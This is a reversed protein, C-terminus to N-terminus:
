KPVIKYYDKKEMKEVKGDKGLLKRADDIRGGVRKIAARAIMEDENTTDYESWSIKDNDDLLIMNIKNDITKKFGKPTIRMKWEHRKIRDLTLVSFIRTNSDGYWTIKDTSTRVRESNFHLQARSIVIHAGSIHTEDLLHLEEMTTELTCEKLDNCKLDAGYRCAQGLDLGKINFGYKYFKDRRKHTIFKAFEGFQDANKFRLWRQEARGTREAGIRKAVQHRETILYFLNALVNIETIIPNKNNEGEHIILYKHDLAEIFFTILAQSEKQTEKFQNKLINRLFGLHDGPDILHRGLIKYIDDAMWKCSKTPEDEDYRYETKFLMDVMAEVVLYDKFTKHIFTVADNQYGDFYFSILIKSLINKINSNSEDRMKAIYYISDESKIKDIIETVKIEDTGAHFLIYAIKRLFNNYEKKNPLLSAFPKNHWKKDYTWDIITRYILGRNIEDDRLAELYKKGETDVLMISVITLLIPQGILEELQTEKLLAYTIPAEPRKQSNFKKLWENIKAEDFDMIEFTHFNANLSTYINKVFQTRGTLILSFKNGNENMEDSLNFLNIIFKVLNSNDGEAAEREDLGDIIVLTQNNNFTKTDKIFPTQKSLIQIVSDELNGMKKLEYFLIHIDKSDKNLLNQEYIDKALIRVSSTKGHGPQGHIIIPMNDESNIRDILAEILNEFEESNEKSDSKRHTASPYVYSKELTLDKNEDIPLPTNKIADILKDTHNILEGEDTNYNSNVSQIYNELAKYNDKETARIQEFNKGFNLRITREFKTVDQDKGKSTLQSRGEELLEKFFPHQMPFNPNLVTSAIIKDYKKKAKVAVNLESVSQNFAKIFLTKVSKIFDYGDKKLFKSLDIALSGFKLDLAHALISVLMEPDKIKKSFDKDTVMIKVM